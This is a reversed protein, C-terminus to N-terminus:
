RRFGRFFKAALQDRLKLLEFVGFLKGSPRVARESEFVLERGSIRLRDFSRESRPEGLNTIWRRHQPRLLPLCVSMAAPPSLALGARLLDSDNALGYALTIAIMQPKHGSLRAQDAAAGRRIGVVDLKGPLPRHAPPDTVAEGDGDAPQVM